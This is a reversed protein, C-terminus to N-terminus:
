GYWKGGIKIRAFSGGEVHDIYERCYAEYDESLRVDFGLLYMPDIELLDSVYEVFERSMSNIGKEYKDFTQRSVSYKYKDKLIKRIETKSRGRMTMTETLRKGQIERLRDYVPNHNKM